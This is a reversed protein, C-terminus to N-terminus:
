STEKESPGGVWPCHRCGRDCCWGRELLYAGTMVFLGTAPDLYGARGASVAQAHAAMAEDYRPATPDFRHRHPRHAGDPRPQRRAPEPASGTM